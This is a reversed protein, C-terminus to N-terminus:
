KCLYNSYDVSGLLRPYKVRKEAKQQRQNGMIQYKLNLMIINSHLFGLPLTSNSMMVYHYKLSPFWAALDFQEDDGCTKGAAMGGNKGQLRSRRNGCM